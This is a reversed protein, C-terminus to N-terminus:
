LRVGIVCVDDIQELNGKWQEFEKNIIEKQEDMPKDYISLLLKKFNASKYKKGGEGGFQDPYGDSFTYFTDGKEVTLTHTTFPRISETYGIAQKDAKIEYGGEGQRFATASEPTHKRKPNIIWLPNNAGAFHLKQTSNGEGELCCLALDMGDRIKEESQAFNEAVLVTLKDLIKGPERLNFEQICRKLGNAGVISVMAGPVGHGTCDAAVYYTLKKGNEEIVDMFYFDGAVIDKPKYLIFSEALYSNVLKTPPLIADQLRKAYNISDLIETNKEEVLEKQKTIEINQFQTQREKEEIIRKQKQTVRFRNYLFFSFLVVLALGSSVSYTITQQRKKEATHIEMQAEHEADKVAQQKEYEYQYEQRIVEKQNEESLISDRMQIYLEYMELAQRYNGTKNYAQWLTESAGKTVKVMGSEQAINLAQLGYDIAKKYNDIEYHINGMSILSSAIGSKDGITEYVTNSRRYFDLSEEYSGQEKYINGINVLSAAVGRKDDIEEKIKLSRIHYDLAKSFFEQSEYIVGINNLSTGIGQKDNIEERIKLDREYYKLANDFDMLEFYIVGINTLAAAVGQKDGIEEQIKLSRTYHDIAQIYNGQNSYIIGINNLAIAVRAIDGIEECINLGRLNFDLAQTYDGQQQYINGINCFSSAMGRKDGLEEDIKIGQFLYDIALSYEGRLHYSVGQTNIAQSMQKKLGKEKAFNYQLEAYYFASDPQSYLYGDWALDDIAKLRITDPQTTDNWITLLSDINVQGFAVHSILIILLTSWKKM